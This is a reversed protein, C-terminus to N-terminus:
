VKKRRIAVLSALGGLGALALTTPEPVPTVTAVFFNPMGPGNDGFDSPPSSLSNAISSETFAGSRGRITSNAYTSGNFAVVEFTIPGSSYGPITTTAGQFYGDGSADYAVSIGLDTLGTPLATPTAGVADTVTGIFYYLDAHFTSDVPAGSLSGITTIAGALADASYSNFVVYGQGYSTAACAAMGVVAIFISKKM